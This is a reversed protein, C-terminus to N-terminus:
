MHCYKIYIGDKVGDMYNVEKQKSGTIYWYAHIGIEKGNKFVGEFSKKGNPHREVILGDKLTNIIM